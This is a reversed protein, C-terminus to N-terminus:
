WGTQWVGWDLGDVRIEDGKGGASAVFPSLAIWKKNEEAARWSTIQWISVELQDGEHEAASIPKRFDGYIDPQLNKKWVWFGAPKLSYMHM